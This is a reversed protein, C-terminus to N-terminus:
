NRMFFGIYMLIKFSNNGYATDLALSQGENAFQYNNMVKNNNLTFKIM